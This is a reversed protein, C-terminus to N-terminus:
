VAFYQYSGADSKPCVRHASKVAPGQGYPNYQTRWSVASLSTCFATEPSRGETNPAMLSSM